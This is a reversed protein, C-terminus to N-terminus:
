EGIGGEYAPSYIDSVGLKSLLNHFPTPELPKTFIDALQHSSNIPLLKFLGKDLRERVVHCNIDLHKTREHFITNHAIHCASDSDCLLLAPTTCPLQLEQLIYNIWQIECATSALARYESESSSRSVTTQKKAKL